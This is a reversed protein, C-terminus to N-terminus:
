ISCQCPINQSYKHVIQMERIGSDPKKDPIEQHLIKRFLFNRAEPKQRIKNKLAQGLALAAQPGQALVYLFYFHAKYINKLIIESCLIKQLQRNIISKM